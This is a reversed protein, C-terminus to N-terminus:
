GFRTQEESLNMSGVVQETEPLVLDVIGVGKIEAAAGEAQHVAADVIDVSGGDGIGEALVEDVEVAVVMVEMWSDVEVVIKVLGGHPPVAKRGEESSDEWHGGVEKETVWQDEEEVTRHSVVGGMHVVMLYFWNPSNKQTHYMM